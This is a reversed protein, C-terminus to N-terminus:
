ARVGTEEVLHRLIPLGFCAFLLSALLTRM